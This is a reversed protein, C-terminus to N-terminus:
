DHTEYREIGVLRKIRHVIKMLKPSDYRFKAYMFDFYGLKNWNYNVVTGIEIARFTHHSWYRNRATYFHIEAPRKIQLALHLFGSDVGAFYKSKHIAVASCHLCEKLLTNTSQGGLRIVDLGSNSYKKEIKLIEHEPLQRDKGTSDWQVTVFDNPLTLEHECTPQILNRSYLYHSADVDSPKELWGPHDRYEFSLAYIGEKNLFDKWETSTLFEFEHFQLKVFNSPFLNLIEQFSDRKRGDLHNRALHLTVQESEAKSIEYCLSVLHIRDGLGQATYKLGPSRTSM